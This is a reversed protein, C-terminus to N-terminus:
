LMLRSSSVVVMTLRIIVWMTCMLMLIAWIEWVVCKELKSLTEGISGTGLTRQILGLCDLKRGQRSMVSGRDTIYTVPPPPHLTVVQPLYVVGM